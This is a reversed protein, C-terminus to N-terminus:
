RVCTGGVCDQTCSWRGDPGCTCSTPACGVIECRLGPGCGMIRCGMPSSPECGGASCFNGGCCSVDGPACGEGCANGAYCRQGAGCDGDSRCASPAECECTRCGNRVRPVQGSPCAACPQTVPECPQCVGAVCWESGVRCQADVTCRGGCGPTCAELVELRGSVCYVRRACCGDSTQGGCIGMSEVCADGAVGQEIPEPCREWRVGTDPLGQTSLVEVTETCAGCALWLAAALWRARDKGGLRDV